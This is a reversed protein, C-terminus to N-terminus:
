KAFCTRDMLRILVRLGQMFARVSVRENTGHMGEATVDEEELFPGFRLVCRSLEEYQRADTAGRNQTPVFIVGGFYHELTEVLAKYGFSDIDSPRSAGIQQAWSLEVGGPVLSRCYAMLSDPTDAPILRFNVNARMDQPMVNGAPAGPTIMTPAVTTSVLHYLSEHRMFYALIAEENGEVDRAWDRMPPQTVRDGLLAITRKVADSLVPKPPHEVISAIAQCLIGLSTGRFPNSSHGGQSRVSLELDAYGKEYTGVTCILAGPAGWDAADSVHGAGEDLIFEFRLGRRKLTEVIAMAGHSQTEEDEGFAFCITRRPREGRSLLYECADLEGTLMEKIDIAGRGWVYGGSVDGSFPAHHWNEETGPIVPVVDQHAMFLAPKLGPDVGELTILLSHGIEEWRALQGLLPYAERLFAHLGDFQSYDMKRTDLYSTTRFRIARSLRAVCGAEDLDQYENENIFLDANKMCKVM